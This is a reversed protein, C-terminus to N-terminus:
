INSKIPFKEKNKGSIKYSKKFGSMNITIRQIAEYLKPSFILIPMCFLFFIRNPIKMIISKGFISKKQM